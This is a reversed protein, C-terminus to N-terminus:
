CSSENPLYEVEIPEGIRNKNFLLGPFLSHANIISAEVFRTWLIVKRQRAIVLTALDEGKQIGVRAIVLDHHFLRILKCGQEDGWITRVAVYGHWKVQLVNAGGVLPAHLLAEGVLDVRGILGILGLPWFWCDDRINIVYHDFCSM